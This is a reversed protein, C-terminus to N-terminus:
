NMSNINVWTDGQQVMLTVERSKPLLKRVRFRDILPVCIHQRVQVPLSSNLIKVDGWTIHIYDWIYGRQLTVQEISM